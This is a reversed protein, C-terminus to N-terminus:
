VQGKEDGGGVIRYDVLKPQFDKCEIVCCTFFASHGKRCPDMNFHAKSKSPKRFKCADCNPRGSEDASAM